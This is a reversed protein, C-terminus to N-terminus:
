ETEMHFKHYHICPIYHETNYCNYSPIYCTMIEVNETLKTWVCNVHLVFFFM